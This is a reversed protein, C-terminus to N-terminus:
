SEIKKKRDKRGIKNKKKPRRRKNEESHQQQTEEDGPRSQDPM